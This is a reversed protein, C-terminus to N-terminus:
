AVKSNFDRKTAFNCMNKKEFIGPKFCELIKGFAYLSMCKAQDRGFIGMDRYFTRMKGFFNWFEKVRSTFGSSLQILAVFANEQFFTSLFGKKPLKKNQAWLEFDGIEETVGSCPVLTTNKSLPCCDGGTLHSFHTAM